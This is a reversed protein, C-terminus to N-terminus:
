EEKAANSFVCRVSKNIGGTYTHVRVFCWSVVWSEFTYKYTFTYFTSKELGACMLTSFMKKSYHEVTEAQRATYQLTHLKTELLLILATDTM